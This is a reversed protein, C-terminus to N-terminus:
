VFGGPLAGTPEGDLWTPTGNVLTARFGSAARTLRGGGGPLDTVRTEDGYVLEGLAFVCLDAVAGVAVRGRDTLGFFAAPETAMRRVAAEITMDRRDRVHRTSVLTTDGAGSFMELHAGADSAGVLVSPEQLLRGAQAPDDNSTGRATM